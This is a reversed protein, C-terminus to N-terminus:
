SADGPSHYQKNRLPPASSAQIHFLPLPNYRIGNCANRCLYAIHKDKLQERSKEWLDILAM